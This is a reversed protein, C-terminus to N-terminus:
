RTPRVLVVRVSGTVTEIGDSRPTFREAEFTVPEDPTDVAAVPTSTHSPAADRPILVLLAAAAAAMALGAFALRSHRPARTQALRPKPRLAGLVPVPVPAHADVEASEEAWARQLWGVAAQTSQDADGLSPSPLDEGENEQKWLSRLSALLADEPDDDTSM